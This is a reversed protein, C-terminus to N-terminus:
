CPPVLVAQYWIHFSDPTPKEWVIEAVVTEELGAITCHVTAMLLHQLLRYLCSQVYLDLGDVWGMLEFTRRWKMGAVVGFLPIMEPAQLGIHPGVLDSEQDYGIMLEVAEVLIWTQLDQNLGL